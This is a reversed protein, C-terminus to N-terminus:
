YLTKFLNWSKLVLNNQFYHHKTVIAVLYQLTIIMFHIFASGLNWLKQVIINFHRRSQDHWEFPFSILVPGIRVGWRGYIYINSFRLTDISSLCATLVSCTWTYHQHILIDFSLFLFINLIISIGMIYEWGWLKIVFLGCQFSALDIKNIISWKRQNEIVQMYWITM